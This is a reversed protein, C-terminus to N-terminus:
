ALAGKFPLGRVRKKTLKFVANAVAPAIPPVGPEGLGTPKEESDVFFTEVKPAENMRVVPYDHFNTATPVGEVVPVQGFLAASLGYLIGGEVQTKAGEPNVVKGCHVACWVRHVRVEGNKVSVEAVQGVVSKFSEHIALGYPQRPSPADAASLGTATFILALPLLRLIKMVNFRSTAALPTM